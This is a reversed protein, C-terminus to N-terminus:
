IQLLLPHQTQQLTALCCSQYQLRSGNRLSPRLLRPELGVRGIHFSLLVCDHHFLQVPGTLSHRQISCLQTARETHIHTRTHMRSHTDAHMLVHLHTQKVFIYNSYSKSVTLPFLSM